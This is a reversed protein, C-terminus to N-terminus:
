VGTGPAVVAAGYAGNLTYTNSVVNGESDVITFHTTEPSERPVPLEPRLRKSPTARGPDIGARWAAARSFSTLERVPVRVHDPDSGYEARDAFARRMAEALLHLRQPDAHAFRGLGMPEIQALIACLAIGGSSPPPMTLWRFGRYHTEIPRRERVRYEAFDRADLVGGGGRVAEAIRRVTEGDRFEAIGRDRFRALTAALDPQKWRAGVSPVEGAPLYIGSAVSCRRLREKALALSDHLCPSVEFGDSALARAPDILRSWSLRGSGFRRHAHWLGAPTGPTGCASWGETSSRRPESKGTAYFDEGARGPATERYDLAVRKRDRGRWMWFGGGGLNGASPYTVALALAVAVGADAANGGARLVDAGVQAAIPEPAAVVGRM